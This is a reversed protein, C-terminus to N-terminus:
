DNRVWESCLIQNIEYDTKDILYNLKQLKIKNSWMQPRLSKLFVKYWMLENLSKKRLYVM